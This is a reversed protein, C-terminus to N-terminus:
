IGAREISLYLFEEQWHQWNRNVLGQNKWHTELHLKFNVHRKKKNVKRQGPLTLLWDSFHVQNTPLPHINNNFEGASANTSLKTFILNGWYTFFVNEIGNVRCMIKHVDQTYSFSNFCTLCIKTTEVHVFYLIPFSTKIPLPVSPTTNIDINSSAALKFTSVIRLM